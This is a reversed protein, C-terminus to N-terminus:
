CLLQVWTWLIKHKSIMKSDNMCWSIAVIKKKKCWIVYISIKIQIKEQLFYSQAIILGMAESLHERGVQGPDCRPAAPGHLGLDTSTSAPALFRM